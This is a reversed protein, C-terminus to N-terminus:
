PRPRIWRRAALAVFGVALGWFASGIGFLALGSGTAAFALVAAEREDPVALMTTMSNSLTAVLALGTPRGQRCRGPEGGVGPGRDVPVVAGHM